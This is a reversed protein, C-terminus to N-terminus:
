GKDTQTGAEAEDTSNGDAQDGDTGGSCVTRQEREEQGNTGYRNTTMRILVGEGYIIVVGKQGNRKERYM